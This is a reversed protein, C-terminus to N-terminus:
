DILGKRKFIELVLEKAKYGNVEKGGHLNLAFVYTNGDKELFGVYWGLKKEGFVGTGTKAFLNEMGEYSHCLMSKMMALHAKSFPLQSSVFKKLLEVQEDASIKLTSGLWFQDEGGSVDMNGYKLRILEKNMTEIGVKRAIEQFFWVVSYRVASRLTHDRNWATIQHKTGDWKFESDPSSVVNAQLGIMGSIIKFTSCPSFRTNCLRPNYKQYYDNKLDYLVFCGTDYPEFLDALSEDTSGQARAALMTLALFFVMMLFLTQIYGIKKMKEKGNAHCLPTLLYQALMRM